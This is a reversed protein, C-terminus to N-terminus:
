VFKEKTKKPYKWKEPINDYDFGNVLPSYNNSFRSIFLKYASTAIGLSNSNKPELPSVSRPHLIVSKYDYIYTTINIPFYTYYTNQQYKIERCCGM